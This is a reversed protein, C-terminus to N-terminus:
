ARICREFILITQGITANVSMGLFGISTATSSKGIENVFASHLRWGNSAYEKLLLQIRSNDVEGTHLDNVLETKYEYLPNRKIQIEKEKEFTQLNQIKNEKEREKEERRNRIEQATIVRKYSYNYHCKFCENVNDGILEGCNPCSKM